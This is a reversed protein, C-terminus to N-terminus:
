YRAAIQDIAEALAHDKDTVINGQDHTTLTIQVTSWV